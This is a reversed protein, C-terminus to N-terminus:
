SPSERQAHTWLHTLRSICAGNMSWAASIKKERILKRACCFLNANHRTLNENIFIQPGFHGDSPKLMKRSQYLKDKTLKSTFEVLVPRFKSDKKQAIRRIDSHKASLM